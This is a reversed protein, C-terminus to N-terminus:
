RSRQQLPCKKRLRYGVSDSTQDRTPCHRTRACPHEAVGGWCAIGASRTASRGHHSSIAAITLHCPLHGGCGLRKDRVSPVNRFRHNSGLGGERACGARSSWTKPASGNPPLPLDAEKVHGRCRHGADFPPNPAPLTPHTRCGGPGRHPRFGLSCGEQLPIHANVCCFTTADGFTNRSRYTRSAGNVQVYRGVPRPTTSADDQERPPGATRSGRPSLQTEQSPWWLVPPGKPPPAHRQWLTVEGQILPLLGVRRSSQKPRSHSLALHEM